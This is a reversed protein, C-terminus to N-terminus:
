ARGGVGFAVSGKAGGCRDDDVAVEVVICPMSCRPCVIKDVDGAVGRQAGGAARAGLHEPVVVVQIDSGLKLFGVRPCCQSQVVADDEM